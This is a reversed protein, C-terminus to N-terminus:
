APFDIIFKSGKLKDYRITGDLQGALGQILQMGLTSRKEFSYEDPIGAGSDQYILLYRSDELSFHIIIEGPGGKPFAHKISNTILENVILSLPVAKEITLFVAEARVDLRISGPRVQYSEFIHHAIKDLYDKYNIKEFDRSQYLKEHVLAISKIRNQSELLIDRVEPQQTSRAQMFLLSSIVQMNNKVRHHIEKLLVEKEQLSTNLEKTREEVQRELNENLYRLQDEIKKRDTIDTLVNLSAPAGLYQIKTGRVVVNRRGGEKSFVEIEYPQIEKGEMRRRIADVLIPHYEEPVHVLLSTGYLEENSYGMMRAAEPNVYLIKGNQHVLIIDPVNDVLSKYREESQRIIRTQEEIQQQLSNNLKQLELLANLRDRVVSYLFLGTISTVVIFLQISILSYPLPQSFFVGHSMWVMSVAILDGLLLTLLVHIFSFRFVAYIVFILFLYPSTGLLILYSGPLLILYYLAYEAWQNAAPKPATEPCCSLILPTIILMASLDGLWWTFLNLPIADGSLCGQSFLTIIGITSGCLSSLASILLFWFTKPPTILSFVGGQYLRYLSYFVLAEICNGGGMMFASLPTVGTGLVALTTGAWVGPLVPLRWLLIAAAAIGSPIWVPSVNGYSIGFNLCIKAFIFYFLTFLLIRVLIPQDNLSSFRMGSGRIM